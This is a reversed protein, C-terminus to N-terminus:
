GFQFYDEGKKIMGLDYRAQGVVGAHSNQFAKINQYLANNDQSKSKNILLQAEIKDKLIYSQPLGGNSFWLQYQMLFLLIFLIAAFVIFVKNESNLL